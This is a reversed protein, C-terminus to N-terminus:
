RTLPRPPGRRAGRPGAARGPRYALHVGSPADLVSSTPAPASGSTASTTAASRRPCRGRDRRAGGRGADDGDGAGRARRLVADLLHLLLRPQLRQGARRARRRRAAPPRGPLAAPHLVGRGAAADGVTGSCALADVDADTLYTCHDVADLGLEVALRVGPATASSTPTCGGACGPPGGPRAPDGPGPRRRLRRARLVRRDLARAARLGRADARDGARRLGRADTGAPVVHAGLFTTEETLRARSRWRARRTARRDARLREQVEVTTTGQRRMEAVLRACTPPWSSTPRRGPDRRRHHPHRGGSYPAGAM